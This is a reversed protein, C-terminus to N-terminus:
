YSILMIRARQLHQSAQAELGKMEGEAKLLEKALQEKSSAAMFDRCCQVVAEIVKALEKRVMHCSAGSVVRMISLLLHENSLWPIASQLKALHLLVQSTPYAIEKDSNHLLERIKQFAEDSCLSDVTASDSAVALLLVAADAQLSPSEQLGAMDLLAGHKQQSEYVEGSSHEALATTKLLSSLAGDGASPPQGAHEVPPAALDNPINICGAESGAALINFLEDQFYQAVKKFARSFTLPDGSRRQLEIAYTCGSTHFVKAKVTCVLGDAFVDAKIAFKTHNVKLISAEMREELFDLLGNGIRSPACKVGLSVHLTTSEDFSYLPDPVNPPAASEPFRVATSTEAGFRCDSISSFEGLAEKGLPEPITGICGQDYFGNFDKSGFGNFQASMSFDSMFDDAYGLKGGGYFDASGMGSLGLAGPPPAAMNVSRTVDDRDPYPDGFYTYSGLDVQDDTGYSQYPPPAHSQTPMGGGRMGEHAFAGDPDDMGYSAYPPM